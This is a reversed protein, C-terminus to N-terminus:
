SGNWPLNIRHLVDKYRPDSRILDWTPDSPLQDLWDDKENIAKDLWEFVHDKDGSNAYILAIQYAPVYSSKSIEILQQITQSAEQTRGAAAYAQGLGALYTPPDDALAMAKKFESIAEDFRKKKLLNQGLRFHARAFNPDLDIAMQAVEIARDYQRDLYYSLSLDSTIQLSLPDLEHALESQRIGEKNQGIALLHESFWQHGTAYNPDDTLAKRFAKNSEKWNWDFQSLIHALSIRAQTLTPDIELAQQAAKRGMPWAERPPLLDYRSYLDYCDALGAYALAYRPDEQVAQQFYDVAREETRERNQSEM